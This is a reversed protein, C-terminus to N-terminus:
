GNEQTQSIFEQPFKDGAWLIPKDLCLGMRYLVLRLEELSNGGVTVGEQTYGDPKGEKDYYVEHVRFYYEDGDEYAMLRHNWSM